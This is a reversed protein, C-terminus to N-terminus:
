IIWDVLSVNNRSKKIKIKLDTDNYTIIKYREEHTNGIEIIARYLHKNDDTTLFYFEDLFGSWYITMNLSLLFKYFKIYIKIGNENLYKVNERFSLIYPNYIKVIELEDIRYNENIGEIKYWGPKYQKIIGVKGYNPGKKVIKYEQEVNQSPETIKVDKLFDRLSIHYKLTRIISKHFRNKHDKWEIVSDYFDKISVKSIISLGNKLQDVLDLEEVREIFDEISIKIEIEKGRYRPEFIQVADEFLYFNALTSDYKGIYRIIDQPIM